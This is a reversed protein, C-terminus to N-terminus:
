RAACRADRRARIQRRGFLHLAVPLWLLVWFDAPRTILNGGDFQLAVVAYLQLVAALLSIGSEFRDRWSLYFNGVIVALFQLLGVLGGYYLVTLFINHTNYKPGESTPVEIPYRIMGDGFWPQEKCLEWVYNWIEPRLSVGRESLREWALFAIAAAAVLILFLRDWRRSSVSLWVAVALLAILPARSGTLLTTLACLGAIAAAAIRLWHPQDRQAVLWAAITTFAGFLFGSRLANYLTAYGQLRYEPLWFQQARVDRFIAYCGALAAALAGFALLRGLQVESIRQAAGIGFIFLVIFLSWKFFDNLEWGHHLVAGASMYLLFLVTLAPIPSATAAEYWRRPRLASLLSPLLLAYYIIVIFNHRSPAWFFGSLFVALGFPIWYTCVLRDLQQLVGPQGGQRVSGDNM